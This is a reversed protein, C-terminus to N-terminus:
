EVEKESPFEQKFKLNFTAGIEEGDKQESSKLINVLQPDKLWESEDINRMFASVRANSETAGELDITDGSQEVKSFWIGEPISDVLEELLHVSIPRSGQLEQIVNMRELLNRKTTELENITELKSNLVAIENKLFSNRQNQYSIRDEIYMLVGVVGLIVVLAGAGAMIGFEINKRKREEERWPLLNIRNSM